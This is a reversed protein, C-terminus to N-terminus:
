PGHVLSTPCEPYKTRIVTSIRDLDRGFDDMHEHHQHEDSRQMLPLTSIDAAHVNKEWDLLLGSCHETHGLNGIYSDMWAGSTSGPEFGSREVDMARHLKKWMYICHVVHYGDSVYLETENGQLVTSLSVSILESASLDEPTASKYWEWENHKLFMSTLEADYCQPPLWSFSLPDFSCNRALATIPDTGCTAMTSVSQNVTETTDFHHPPTKFHKAISFCLIAFAVASTGLLLLKRYAKTRGNRPLSPNNLVLYRFPGPDDPSSGTDHYLTGRADEVDYPKSQNLSM